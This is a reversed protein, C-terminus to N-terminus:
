YKPNNEKSILGMGFDTKFPSILIITNIMFYNIDAQLWIVM